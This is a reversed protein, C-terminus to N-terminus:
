YYTLFDQIHKNLEELKKIEDNIKVFEKDMEEIRNAAEEICSNAIGDESQIENALIRLAAILTKNDTKM